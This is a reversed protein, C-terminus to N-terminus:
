AKGAAVEAALALTRDVMVDISYNREVRERARQILDLRLARENLIREAAQALRQWDGRRAVLGTDGLVEMTGPADVAAVPVRLAMAERVVGPSGELESAFLLLDWTALLPAGAVPGAFQISRGLQLSAALSRLSSEDPGSGVITLTAEPMRERISAFARIVVDVGKKPALKAITGIRPPAGCPAPSGPPRETGHMRAALADLKAIDIGSPIVAIQARPIGAAALVDAVAGSVAVFRAVRRPDYKLRTFWTNRLPSAIRRHVIVPVRAWAGAAVGISAAAGDHLHLVDCPIRRAARALARIAFPDYAFRMSFPRAPIGREECLSFLEAGRRVAASAQVGRAISGEMLALVQREGGGLERNTSVHM